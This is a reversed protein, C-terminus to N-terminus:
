QWSGVATSSRRSSVITRGDRGADDACSGGFSAVPLMPHKASEHICSTGQPQAAAFPVPVIDSLPINGQITLPENPTWTVRIDLAELTLRKERKDFHDTPSALAPACLTRSRSSQSGSSGAHSAIPLQVSLFPSTVASSNRSSVSEWSRDVATMPYKALDFAEALAMMAELAADM